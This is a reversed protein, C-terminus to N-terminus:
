SSKAYLSGRYSLKAKPLTVTRRPEAFPSGLLGAWSNIPVSDLWAKPLAIDVIPSMLSSPRESIAIEEIPILLM